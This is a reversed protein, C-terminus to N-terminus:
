RSKHKKGQPHDVPLDSGEEGDIGSASVIDDEKDYNSALHATYRGLPTEKYAMVLSIHFPPQKVHYM